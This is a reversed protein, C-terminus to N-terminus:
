VFTTILKEMISLSINKGDKEEATIAGWEEDFVNNEEELLSLTNESRDEAKVWRGAIHGVATPSEHNPCHGVNGLEIYRHVFNQHAPSSEREQLCQFM